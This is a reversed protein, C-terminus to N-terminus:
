VKWCNLCVNILQQNWLLIEILFLISVQREARKEALPDTDAKRHVHHPLGPDQLPAIEKSM